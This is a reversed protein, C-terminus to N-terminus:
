TLKLRAAKLVKEADKDAKSYNLKNAWKELERLEKETDTKEGEFKILAKRQNEIATLLLEKLERSPKMAFNKFSPAQSMDRVDLFSGVNSGQTCIYLGPFGDLSDYGKPTKAPISAPDPWQYAYWWRALVSQILKGKECKSYLESSASLYTTSSSSTVKAKSAAKKKTTSAKKKPTPKKKPTKKPTSAKSKKPSPKKLASLPADESSDSYDGDDDGDEDGEDDDDDDDVIFDDTDNGDNSEIYDGEGGDDQFEAEDSEDEDNDDENYNISRRSRSGAKLSSLPVDDSTSSDDDSM